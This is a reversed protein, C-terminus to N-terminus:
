LLITLNSNQFTTMVGNTWGTLPLETKNRVRTQLVNLRFETWECNEQNCKRGPKRSM